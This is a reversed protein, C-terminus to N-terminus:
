ITEPQEKEQYKEACKEGDAITKVKTLQKLANTVPLKSDLHHQHSDSLYLNEGMEYETHLCHIM